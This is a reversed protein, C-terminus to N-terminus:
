IIKKEMIVSKWKDEITEYNFRDYLKKAPNDKFVELRISDIKSEFAVKEIIKMIYSGIWKGIMPPTIQINNIYFFDPKEILTYFGIRRNNKLIIYTEEPVFDWRFCGSKWGWWYKTFYSFMNIKTIRYCYRYDSETSNRVTILDM